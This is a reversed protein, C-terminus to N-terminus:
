LMKEVSVADFSLRLLAGHKQRHNARGGVLHQFAKDRKVLWSAFLKLCEHLGHPFMVVRCWGLDHLPVFEVRSKATRSFRHRWVHVNRLITWQRTNYIRISRWGSAARCNPRRYGPRHYAVGDRLRALGSMQSVMAFHVLWPLLASLRSPVANQIEAGVLCPHGCLRALSLLSSLSLEFVIGSFPIGDVQPFGPWEGTVQQKWLAFFTVQSCKASASWLLWSLGARHNTVQM